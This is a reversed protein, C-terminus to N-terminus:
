AHSHHTASSPGENSPNMASGGCQISLDFQDRPGEGRVGLFGSQGALVEVQFWRPDVGGILFHRFLFLGKGFVFADIKNRDYNLVIQVEVDGLSKQFGSEVHDAVFGNSEIKLLSTLQALDDVLRFLDKSM